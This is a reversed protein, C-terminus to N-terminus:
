AAAKEGEESSTIPITEGEGDVEEDDDGEIETTTEESTTSTQEQQQQPKPAHWEAEIDSVAPCVVNKFSTQARQLVSDMSTSRLAVMENVFSIIQRMKEDSLLDVNSITATSSSSSKNKNNSEQKNNRESKKKTINNDETTNNNKKNNNEGEQKNNDTFASVVQKGELEHFFADVLASALLDESCQIGTTSLLRLSPVTLESRWLQKSHDQHCYMFQARFKTAPCIDVQQRCVIDAIHKPMKLSSSSSSSFIENNNNNNNNLSLPHLGSKAAWYFSMSNSLFHPNTAFRRFVNGWLSRRFFFLPDKQQQQLNAATTGMLAREGYFRFYATADTPRLRPVAVGTKQYDGPVFVKQVIKDDKKDLLTAPTSNKIFDIPIQAADAAVSAGVRAFLQALRHASESVATLPLFAKAQSEATKILEVEDYESESALLDHELCRM